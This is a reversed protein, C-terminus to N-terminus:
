EGFDMDIYDDPIAHSFSDVYRRYIRAQVAGSLTQARSTALRGSRQTELLRAAREGPAMGRRHAYATQRVEATAKPPAADSAGAVGVPALLAATLLLALPSLTHHGREFQHM